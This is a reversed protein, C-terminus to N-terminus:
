LRERISYNHYCYDVTIGLETITIYDLTKTQIKGIQKITIVTTMQLRVQIYYKGSNFTRNGFMQFISSQTPWINRRCEQENWTLHKLLCGVPRTGLYCIAPLRRSIYIRYRDIWNSPAYLFGSFHLFSPVNLFILRVRPSYCDERRNRYASIGPLQYQSWPKQRSPPLAASWGMSWRPLILILLTTLPTEDSNSEFAIM